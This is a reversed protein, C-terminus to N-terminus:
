ILNQESCETYILAFHTFFINICGELYWVYDFDLLFFFDHPLPHVHGGYKVTMKHVHSSAQNSHFGNLKM